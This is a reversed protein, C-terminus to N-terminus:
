TSHDKVSHTAVLNQEATSAISQMHLNVESSLERQKHASSEVSQMLENMSQMLNEVESLREASVKAVDGCADTQERNALIDKQWGEITTLMTDISEKIQVTAKSTRGSLARVEDAVVAFGRGQEGARAAE